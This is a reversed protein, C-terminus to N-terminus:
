EGANNASLGAVAAQLSVRTAARQRRLNDPAHGRTTQRGLNNNNTQEVERYPADHAMCALLM